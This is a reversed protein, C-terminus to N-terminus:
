HCLVARAWELPLAAASPHPSFPPARVEHRPTEEHEHSVHGRGEDADPAPPPLAREVADLARELLGREPEFWWVVEAARSGPAPEALLEALADLHQLM